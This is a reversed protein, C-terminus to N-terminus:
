TDQSKKISEPRELLKRSFEPDLSTSIAPPLDAPLTPCADPDKVPKAQTRGRNAAHQATQLKATDRYRVAAALWGSHVEGAV